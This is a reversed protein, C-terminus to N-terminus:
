RQRGFYYNILICLAGGVVMTIILAPAWGLDRYWEVLAHMM